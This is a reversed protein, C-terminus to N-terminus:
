DNLAQALRTKYPKVKKIQSGIRTPIDSWIRGMNDVYAAYLLHIDTLSSIVNSLQQVKLASILGCNRRVQTIKPLDSLKRTNHLTEILEKREQHNVTCMVQWLLPSFCMFVLKNFLRSLITLSRTCILLWVYIYILLQISTWNILKSFTSLMEM